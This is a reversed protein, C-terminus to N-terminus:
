RTLAKKNIYDLMYIILHLVTPLVLFSVVAHPSVRATPLRAAAEAAALAPM